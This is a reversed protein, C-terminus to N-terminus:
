FYGVHYQAFWTSSRWYPVASHNLPTEDKADPHLVTESLELEKYNFAAILNSMEKRM